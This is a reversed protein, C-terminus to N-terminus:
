VNCIVCTIYSQEHDKQGMAIYLYGNVIVCTTPRPFPTSIKGIIEGEPSIKLIGYGDWMCVYIVGNDIMLGDPYGAHSSLDIILVPEGLGDENYNFVQICRKPTDVYYMKGRFWDLGNSLSADLLKVLSNEKFNYRYLGPKGSDQNPKEIINMTGIILNGCPDCKGDNFRINNSIHYSCDLVKITEDPKSFSVKYIGDQCPILYNEGMIPIIASPYNETVVHELHAGLINYRYARNKLIDVWLLYGNSHVLGELLIGSTGSLVRFDTM